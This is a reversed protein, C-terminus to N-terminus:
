AGHSGPAKIDALWGQWDKISGNFANCDVYGRIGAVHGEATHQWFHWRRDGYKVSPYYKM